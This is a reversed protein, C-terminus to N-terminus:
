PQPPRGYAIGAWAREHLYYAASKLLTDIVGIAAALAMEGTSYWVILVTLLTAVVRWSLSKAISRRKTEYVQHV